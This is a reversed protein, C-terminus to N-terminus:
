GGSPGKQPSLHALLEEYAMGIGAAINRLRQEYTPVDALAENAKHGASRLADWDETSPEPNIYVTAAAHELERLADACQDRQTRLRKILPLTTIAKGETPQPPRQAMYLLSLRAHLAAMATEGDSDGERSCAWRDRNVACCAAALDERPVPIAADVETPQPSPLTALYRARIGQKTLRVLIRLTEALLDTDTDRVAKVVADVMEEPIEGPLEPEMDIAWLALEILANGETPAAALQHLRAVVGQLRNRPDLSEDLAHAIILPITLGSM